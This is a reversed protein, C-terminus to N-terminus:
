RRLGRVFTGHVPVGSVTPVAAGRRRASKPATVAGCIANAIASATQYIPNGSAFISIVTEATPVFGCVQTAIAQVQSVDISGPTGPTACGTLSMVVLLPIITKRM